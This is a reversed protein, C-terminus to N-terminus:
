EDSRIYREGLPGKKVLKYGMAAMFSVFSIRERVYIMSFIWLARLVLGGLLAKM